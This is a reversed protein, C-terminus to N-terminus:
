STCISTFLSSQKTDAYQSNELSSNKSHVVKNLAAEFGQLLEGISIASYWSSCYSFNNMTHTYAGKLPWGLFRNDSLFVGCNLLSKSKLLSGKYHWAVLGISILYNGAQSYLEITPHTPYLGLTPCEWFLPGLVLCYGLGARCKPFVTGGMPKVWQLTCPSYM